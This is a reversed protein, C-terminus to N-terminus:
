YGLWALVAQAKYSEKDGCDTFFENADAGHKRIEALARAKSILIGKASTYYDMASNGPTNIIRKLVHECATLSFEGQGSQPMSRGQM